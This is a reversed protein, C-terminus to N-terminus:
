LDLLARGELGKRRAGSPMEQLYGPARIPITHQDSETQAALRLCIFPNRKLRGHNPKQTLNQSIAVEPENIERVKKSNYSGAILLDDLSGSSLSVRRM